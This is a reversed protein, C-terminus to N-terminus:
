GQAVRAKRSRDGNGSTKWDTWHTTMLRCARQIEQDAGPFAPRVNVFGGVRDFFIDISLFNTPFGLFCM